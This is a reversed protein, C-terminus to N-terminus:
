YPSGITNLDKAIEDRKQRCLAALESNVKGQDADAACMGWAEAAVTHLPAAKGEIADCYAKRADADGAMEAPVIATDLALMNNLWALVRRISAKERNKDAYSLGLPFPHSLVDEFDRELLFFAAASGEPTDPKAAMSLKRAKDLAEDAKAKERPKMVMRVANAPGCHAMKAPIVEVKGCVGHVAGGPCSADWSTRLETVPDPAAVAPLALACM